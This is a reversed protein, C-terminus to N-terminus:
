RNCRDLERARRLCSRAEEHRGDTALLVGLMRHALAYSPDLALAKRYAAEAALCDWDLWYSVMARATQSEAIEPGSVVAHAAADRARPWVEQPPADATMPSCGFIRSAPGHWRISLISSPPAPTIDM